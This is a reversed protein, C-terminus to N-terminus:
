IEIFDPIEIDFKVNIDENLYVRADLWKLLKMQGETLAFYNEEGTYNNIIRVLKKEEKEM